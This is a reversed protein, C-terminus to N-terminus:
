IGPGRLGNAVRHPGVEGWRQQGGEGKVFHGVSESRHQGSAMVRAPLTVEAAAAAAARRDRKHCPKSVCDM